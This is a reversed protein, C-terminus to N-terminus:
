KRLTVDVQWPDGLKYSTGDATEGSTTYVGIVSIKEGPTSSQLIDCVQTATSVPTDKLHTIVEGAEINAKSAPSNTDVIGIVLGDINKGTLRKQVAKAEAQDEEPFYTSFNPDSLAMLIQWGPNNKGGGESLGKLLPEAHDSSIAFNQDRTEGTAYADNIGVLKAENNLLPGGSNGLNLTASHQITSPLDPESPDGTTAVDPSQVVGNTLVAKQNSTEGVTEPYGIATLEDGQKLEGSDGFEVQKLDEQPTALKVVALDECPDSGVLRAPVPARDEIRVKLAAEGAVVHANTLILGQEADYIIGTGSGGLGGLVQVTAPAVREFIERPSLDDATATTTTLGGGLALASVTAVCIRTIPRM